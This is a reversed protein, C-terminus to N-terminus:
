GKWKAWKKLTKTTTLVTPTTLVRGMTAVWGEWTEGRPAVVVGVKTATKKRALQVQFPGGTGCWPM